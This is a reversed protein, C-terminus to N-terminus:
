GLSDLGIAMQSLILREGPATSPHPQPCLGGFKQLGVFEYSKTVFPDRRQYRIVIIIFVSHGLFYYVLTM